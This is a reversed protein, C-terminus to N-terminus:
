KTYKQLKYATQVIKCNVFLSFKTLIGSQISVFLLVKVKLAMLLCWNHNSIELFGKHQVSHLWEYWCLSASSGGRGLLSMFYVRLQWYYVIFPGMVLFYYLIHLQLIWIRIKYMIRGGRLHCGHHLDNHKWTKLLDTRGMRTNHKHGM